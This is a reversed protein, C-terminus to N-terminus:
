LWRAYESLVRQELEGVPVHFGAIDCDGHDFSALSQVSGKYDIEIPVHRRALADRLITLAFAHSADIRLVGRSDPSTRELEAELETALSELTPSLRAAIRKEAWLLKEGFPTLKAGRGRLSDVLPVGFAYRAQRVLGWGHRYSNGVAKCALAISGTEHIASLLPFLQPLLREGDPHGRLVWHPKIALRHM